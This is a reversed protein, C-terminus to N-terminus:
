WSPKPFSVFKNSFPVSSVELARAAPDTVGLPGLLASPASFSIDSALVRTSVTTSVVGLSVEFCDPSISVDLNSFLTDSGVAVFDSTIAAVATPMFMSDVAGDVFSKTAGSAGM